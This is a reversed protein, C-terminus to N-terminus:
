ATFKYVSSTEASLPSNAFLMLSEHLIGYPPSSNCYENLTISEQRVLSSSYTYMISQRYTGGFMLYSDGFLAVNLGSGNDTGTLHSAATSKTFSSNYVDFTGSVAEFIAYPAKSSYNTIGGGTANSGSLNTLTTKTLSTDYATVESYAASSYGRGGALIVRGNLSAAAYDSGHTSSSATSKTFSSNYAIVNNKYSTSYVGGGLIMYPGNSAGNLNAIKDTLASCSSKTLANDYKTVTSKYPGLGGAFVVYGQHNVGTFRSTTDPLSTAITRTCSSNFANVTDFYNRSGDEGGAFLIYDATAGGAIGYSIVYSLGMTLAGNYQYGSSYFLRAVGNVGIWAKKIKRAVGGVGIYMKSVKKAVSGVGIWMGKAM